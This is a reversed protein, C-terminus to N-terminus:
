SLKKKRKKNKNDYCEKCMYVIGGKRKTKKKDVHGEARIFTNNCDPHTCKIEQHYCDYCVEEEEGDEGCLTDAMGLHTDNGCLFCQGIHEKYCDECYLYDDIERISEMSFLEGCSECTNYSEDLCYNCINIDESNIFTLDTMSTVTDCIGCYGFYEQFCHECYYGQEISVIFHQPVMDGCNDCCCGVEDRVEDFWNGDIGFPLPFELYFDKWKIGVNKHRVKSHCRLDFYGWYESTTSSPSMGTINEYGLSSDSKLWCNPEKLHNAYKRQLYDRTTQQIISTINGYIRGYVINGDTIYIFQRGLVKGRVEVTCVITYTDQLYQYVAEHYEGGIRLCSSFSCNTSCLVYSEPRISLKIIGSKLKTYFEQFDPLDCTEVLNHYICDRIKKLTQILNTLLEPTLEQTNRTEKILNNYASVYENIKTLTHNNVEKIYNQIYTTVKIKNKGIVILNNYVAKQIEPTPIDVVKNHKLADQLFVSIVAYKQTQLMADIYDEDKLEIKISDDTGFLWDFTKRKTEYGKLVKNLYKRGFVINPFYSQIAKVFRDMETKFM